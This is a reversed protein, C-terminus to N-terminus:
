CTPRQWISDMLSTSSTPRYGVAKPEPTNTKTRPHSQQDLHPPQPFARLQPAATPHRNRGRERSLPCATNIIGELTGWGLDVYIFGLRASPTIPKNINEAAASASQLLLPPGAAACRSMMIYNSRPASPRPALPGLCGLGASVALQPSRRRPAAPLSCGPAGLNWAQPQPSRTSPAGSSSGEDVEDM